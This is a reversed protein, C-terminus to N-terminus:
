CIDIYTLLSNIVGAALRIPRFKSWSDGSRRIDSCPLETVFASVLVSLRQPSWLFGGSDEPPPKM